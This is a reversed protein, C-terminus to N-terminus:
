FPPKDISREISRRVAEQIAEESTYGSAMLSTIDEMTKEDERIVEDVMETM